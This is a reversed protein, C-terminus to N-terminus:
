IKLEKEIAFQNDYFEDPTMIHCGHSDGFSIVFDVLDGFQDKNLDATSVYFRHGNKEYTMFELQDKIIIKIEEITYGSYDSLIGCAAHFYKNQQNSRSVSFKKLEIKSKQEILKDFYQKAKNRDPSISLDFKM